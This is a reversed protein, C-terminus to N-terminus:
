LNCELVMDGIGHWPAIACCERGVPFDIDTGRARYISSRCRGQGTPWGEMGPSLPISAQMGDAKAETETQTCAANALAETAASGLGDLALSYPM